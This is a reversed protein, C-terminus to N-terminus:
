AAKRWRRIPLVYARPRTLGHDLARLLTTRVGPDDMDHDEADFNDPLGGERGVATLPDELACSAVTLQEFVERQTGFGEICHHLLLNPHRESM